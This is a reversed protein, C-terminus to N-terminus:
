AKKGGHRYPRTKNYEHKIEVVKMLDFGAFAAISFCHILVQRCSEHAEHDSDYLCACAEDIAQATDRYGAPADSLVDSFDYRGYSGEAHKGAFDLIRIVVDAIEVAFGEPKQSDRARKILEDFNVAPDLWHKTPVKVLALNHGARFEELAEALESMILVRAEYWKRDAEWWGHDVANKYCADRWDNLNITKPTTM